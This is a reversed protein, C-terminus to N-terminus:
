LDFTQIMSIVNADCEGCDCRSARFCYVGNSSMPNESFISQIKDSLENDIQSQVAESPQTDGFYESKLAFQNNTNFLRTIVEGGSNLYDTLFTTM